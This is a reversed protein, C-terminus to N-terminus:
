VEGEASSEREPAIQTKGSPILQGAGTLRQVASAQGPMAGHAAEASPYLDLLRDAGILGSIRRVPATTVVLRLEGGSGTARKHARVIARVGACDCFRTATMDIIVVRNRSVASTLEDAVGPANGIDIEEPLPVIVERQTLAHAMLM